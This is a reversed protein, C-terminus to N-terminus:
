KGHDGGFNIHKGVFREVKVGSNLASLLERAETSVLWLGATLDGRLYDVKAQKLMAVALRTAAQPHVTSEIKTM